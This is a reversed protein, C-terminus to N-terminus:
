RSSDVEGVRIEGCGATCQSHSPSSCSPADSLITLRNSLQGADVMGRRPDTVSTASPRRTRGRVLGRARVGARIADIRDRKAQGLEPPLSRSLDLFQNILQDYEPPIRPATEILRNLMNVFFTASQAARDADSSAIASSLDTLAATFQKVQIRSNVTDVVVNLKRDLRPIHSEHTVDWSQPGSQTLVFRMETVKAQIALEQARLLQEPQDNHEFVVYKWVRRIRPNLRAAALSFDKMFQYAYDFDGNVRYPVYSPQDVGDISFLMENVGSCIMEPRFEFNAHTIISVVARPYLQSVMRVMEWTHANLLPEGHGAFEFRRVRIGARNLDTVIKQPIHASLTMHGYPTRAVRTTRENRSICGSCELQCAMSPEIQFTKIMKLWDYLRRLGIRPMLCCCRSCYEPFPMQGSRLKARITNFIPGLYVDRAYDLSPDFPLLTLLSGYDDWCALSGNSRLFLSHYSNCFM